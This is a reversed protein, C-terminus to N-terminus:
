APQFLAVVTNKAEPMAHRSIETMGEPVTEDGSTLVCLIGKPALRPKAAELAVAMNDVARLTAVDFVRDAAMSEVRGAFVETSLRLTRVVERLFTAKKNQSEALTVRLDPRALQIPMGPFGAGSGFDLLSSEQSLHQGLVSAAYLSEGFHRTVMEAPDRVATLNTRANWRVLLDLYTALQESLGSSVDAYPKLLEAIRSPAIPTMRRQPYTGAGSVLLHEVHFM